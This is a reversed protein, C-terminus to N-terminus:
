PMSHILNYLNLAENKQLDLVLIPNLQVYRSKRNSCSLAVHVSLSIRM